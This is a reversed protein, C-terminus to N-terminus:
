YIRLREMLSNESLVFALPFTNKIEKTNSEEPNPNTAQISRLITEFDAYMAFPTKFQYQGDHFKVLSGGEPMVIRVTENDKFSQFHKDRIIEIAFVQLCNM